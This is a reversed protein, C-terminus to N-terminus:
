KLCGHNMNTTDLILSSAKSILVFLIKWCFSIINEKPLLFNLLVASPKQHYKLLPINEKLTVDKKSLVVGLYISKDRLYPFQPISEIMLPIINSRVEEEFYTQVFKQQEKNLKRETILFIKDNELEKRVDEWISNFEEQQLLVIQQIEDLIKNPSQEMHMNRIKDGFDAMRKLTAVRVRFFEDMNNSFIGLFRVRERLPVSADAAEQLVRANFSLWSIDRPITKRKMFAM